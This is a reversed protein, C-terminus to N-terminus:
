TKKSIWISKRKHIIKETIKSMSTLLSIPRYNSFNDKEKAKYIPIVKAIKMSDPVIGTQISKNIIVSIPYAISHGISKM